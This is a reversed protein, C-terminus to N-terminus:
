NCLVAKKLNEKILLVCLCFVPLLIYVVSAGDHGLHDDGTGLTNVCLTPTSLCMEDVREKGDSM